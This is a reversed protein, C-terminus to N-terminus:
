EALEGSLSDSVYVVGTLGRVSLKIYRGRANKVVLNATSSTGDPYFFIPSSMSADQNQLADTGQVALQERADQTTQSAVFVIEEPLHKMTTPASQAFLQPMPAVAPTGVGGMGTMTSSELYDEDSYWPEIHYGSAEPEYRFVYTRGTEMAKARGRAWEARILDGSKRLRYSELPQTASPMALAAIVVLLGLVLMMELLTVGRPQNSRTISHTPM